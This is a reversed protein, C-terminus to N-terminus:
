AETGEDMGEEITIAFAFPVIEGPEIMQLRNAKREEHRGLVLCNAPEIGCVYEGQGMMKWQTLYPLNEKVYSVTAYVGRNPNGLTIHAEGADDAKVDHFFCQEKYSPTPADMKAWTKLGRQADADRPKVPGRADYTLTSSEEVLPWGFNLHYLLMLPVAKYGANEARDMVYITNDGVFSYISRVLRLNEGFVRAERLTGTVLLRCQEDETWEHRIGVEEAPLHSAYGHLGLNDGGESNAMGANSLGCTTMLGGHFTRLWRRDEPEFAHPHAPLTPSVWALPMGNYSAQGIDMGRSLLVVYELGGGTRVRVAHVGDSVGDNYTFREVGAVQSLDGIREGLERKTYDDGFLQAM